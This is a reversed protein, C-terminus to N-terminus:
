LKTVQEDTLRKNFIKVNRINGYLHTTSDYKAGIAIESLGSGVGADTDPTGKSDGDVYFEIDDLAWVLAASYTTGITLSTTDVVDSNNGVTGRTLSGLANNTAVYIGGRDSSSNDSVDMVFGNVTHVHSTVFDASVTMPFTDIGAASYTLVDANRGVSSAATEIYSSPFSGAEVQAGWVLISSTGDLDVTQLNDASALYIALLGSVDTTSQFTISARVRGDSLQEVQADDHTTTGVAANDLDFYSSEDIDYGLTQLRVWSLQDAKAHISFTTPTASSITLAQM